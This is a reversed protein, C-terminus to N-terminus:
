KMLQQPLKLLFDIESIMMQNRHIKDLDSLTILSNIAMTRRELLKKYLIKWGESRFMDRVHEAEEKSIQAMPDTGRDQIPFPLQIKM